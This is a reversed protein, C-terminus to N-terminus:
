SGRYTTFAFPSLLLPVHYHSCDALVEFVIEVAPYFTEVGREAFYRGSEFTLRYRGATLSSPGLDAVRGQLDTIGSSVTVDAAADAGGDAQLTVSVGPAPAGSSADLVHTSVLSRETM